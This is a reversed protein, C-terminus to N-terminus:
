LPLVSGKDNDNITRNKIAEARIKEQLTPSILKSIQKPELENEEMYSAILDIYTSVGDKMLGEILIQFAQQKNVQSM